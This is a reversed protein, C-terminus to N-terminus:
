STGDLEASAVVPLFRKAWDKLGAIKMRRQCVKHCCDSSSHSAPQSVIQKDTNPHSSAPVASRTTVETVTSPPEPTASVLLTGDSATVLELITSCPLPLVEAINSNVLDASLYFVCM